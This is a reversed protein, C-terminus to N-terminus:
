AGQVELGILERRIQARALRVRSKVTAQPVGLLQAAEKTTLGDIVTALLAQRLAPSLVRLADGLGGHEIALLVEDEVSRVWPSRAQLVAGTAPTPAARRRLRSLLQRIAIGWLWAGVDGDGRFAGASKWVAVFTDQVAEAAVDPDATRRRLRLLLWAAHRGYLERLAGEDGDAVRGLLVADSSEALMDVVTAGARGM